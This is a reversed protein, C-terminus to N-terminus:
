TRVEEDDDDQLGGHTGPLTNPPDVTLCAEIHKRMDEGHHQEYRLGFVEKLQLTALCPPRLM